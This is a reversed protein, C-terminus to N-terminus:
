EKEIEELKMQFSLKKNKEEQIAATEEVSMEQGSSTAGISIFVSIALAVLLSM